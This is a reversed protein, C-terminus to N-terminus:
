FTISFLVVAISLRAFLNFVLSLSFRSFFAGFLLTWVIFVWDLRCGFLLRPFLGVKGCFCAAHWQTLGRWKGGCYWWMGGWGWMCVFFCGGVSKSWVTGCWLGVVNRGLGVVEVVVWTVSVGGVEGWEVWEGGGGGGWGMEMKILWARMVLTEWAGWSCSHGM